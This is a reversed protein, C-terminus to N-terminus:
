SMQRSIFMFFCVLVLLLILSCILYEGFRRFYNVMPIWTVIFKLVDENDKVQERWKQEIFASLLSVLRVSQDAQSLQKSEM